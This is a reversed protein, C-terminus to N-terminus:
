DKTNDMREFGMDKIKIYGYAFSDQNSIRLAEFKVNPVIGKFLEVRQM